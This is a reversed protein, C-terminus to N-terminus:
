RCYDQYRYDLISPTLSGDVGRRRGTTSIKAITIRKKDVNPSLLGSVVYRVSVSPTMASIYGNGGESSRHGTRNESAVNVYDGVRIRLLSSM